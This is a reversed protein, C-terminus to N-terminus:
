LHVKYIQGNYAVELGNDVEAQVSEANDVTRYTTKVSDVM